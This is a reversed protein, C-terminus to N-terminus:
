WDKWEIEKPGNIVPQSMKGVARELKTLVRPLTSDEGFSQPKLGNTQPTVYTPSVLSRIRPTQRESVSLTPLRPTESRLLPSNVRPVVMDGTVTTQSVKLEPLRTWSREKLSSPGQDQSQPAKLVPLENLRATSKGPSLPPLRFASIKEEAELPKLRSVPPKKESTYPKLKMPPGQSLRSSTWHRRATM